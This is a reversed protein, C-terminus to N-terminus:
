FREFQQQCKLLWHSARFCKTFLNGTSADADAKNSYAAGYKKLETTRQQYIDHESFTSVTEDWTPPKRANTLKVSTVSKEQIQTLDAEPNAVFTPYEYFSLLASSSQATEDNM